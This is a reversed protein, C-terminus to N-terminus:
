RSSLKVKADMVPDDFFGEPLTASNTDKVKEKEKEKEEEEVQQIDTTNITSDKEKSEFKQTLASTGNVQKSNDDFFDAPLNSKTQVVPQSSNKLIGKIKKNASTNLSPSPPRKFTQVNSTKATSEIELKTKKALAVNDKHM